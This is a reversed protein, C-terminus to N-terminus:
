REPSVAESMYRRRPPQYDCVPFSSCATFDGYRGKRLILVGQQCAPCAAEAAVGPDLMEVALAGEQVLERLFSSQQGQVTILTVTRRARTLAVYFLRREESLPYSDGSPMALQLVPDEARPDPFSRGRPVSVMSPIIVYDAEGGKSRHITSFTLNITAGYKRQWNDPIHLGDANFRGLVLVSVKGDRSPRIEGAQLRAHLNALSHDVADVVAYRDKAQLASLTPETSSVSSRVQKRLQTPNKSVFRGAVDCLSQPSRFTQELRMSVSSGFWREFETMVSIDAGAFRNISQWDDGVAFLHRDPEQVLARCLRARALSADQFEDALVLDYPSQCRGQELHEAALNLMDEFDIGGEAVLAEDWSQMIPTVIELFAQFREKSASAPLEQLRKALDEQSLCNSKAHSIFTRVLVIIEAEAVPPLGLKPIPRNPNPDLQIGREALAQTLEERWPRTRLQHSTTEILDTQHRQHEARKWAVGSLYGVFDAPPNGNADLAFHEHYLDADPYFFDPHYQSHNSTVTDHEYPREYMYSVGNYFLWNAIWSEERSKVREGNLTLTYPDGRRDWGDAAESSGPPPLDRGYVLRFLDWNSRFDSSQDKLGDVLEALKKLGANSDVAWNPVRPKRGTAASILELGLKHFTSTEVELDIGLREFARAAREGLEDAAAKNFALMVIRDAPILGRAIAYAAKGVMTSTKGSGASAIVQVRNDFCIIARAQEETLPKSEVLDLLPRCDVLEAAMLGDNADGFVKGWDYRWAELQLEVLDPAALKGHVGPARFLKWLSEESTSLAPRERLFKAQQDRTVWRRITRTGEVLEAGRNVWLALPQLGEEFQKAQSTSRHDLLAAELSAAEDNPLGRVRLDDIEVESWFVGRRFNFPKRDGLELSITRWPTELEFGNDAIRITWRPSGTFLRGWASPQWETSNTEPIM